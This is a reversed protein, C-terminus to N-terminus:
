SGRVVGRENKGDGKTDIPLRPTVHSGPFTTALERKGRIIGGFADLRYAQLVDCGGQTVSAGVQDGFAHRVTVEVETRNM